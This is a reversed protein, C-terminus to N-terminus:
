LDKLKKKLKRVKGEKLLTLICNVKSKAEQLTKSESIEIFCLEACDEFGRRYSEKDLKEGKEETM